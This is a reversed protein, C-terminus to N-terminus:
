SNDNVKKVSMKFALTRKLEKNEINLHSHSDSDLLDKKILLFTIKM